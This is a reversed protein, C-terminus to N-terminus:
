TFGLSLQGKNEAETEQGKHEWKLNFLLHAIGDAVAYHKFSPIEFFRKAKTLIKDLLINMRLRYGLDHM